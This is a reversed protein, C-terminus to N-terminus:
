PFLLRSTGVKMPRPAGTKEEIGLRTGGSAGLLRLPAQKRMNSKHPLM